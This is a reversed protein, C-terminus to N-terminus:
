EGNERRSVIREAKLRLQYENEDEDQPGQEVTVRTGKVRRAAHADAWAQDITAPVFVPEVGGGVQEDEDPRSRKAARELYGEVKAKRQFFLFIFCFFFLCYVFLFLGFGFGFGFFFWFGFCFCRM